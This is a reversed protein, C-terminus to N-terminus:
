KTSKFFITRLHKIDVFDCPYNKIKAILNRFSNAGDFHNNASIKPTTRIPNEKKLPFFIYPGEEHFIEM